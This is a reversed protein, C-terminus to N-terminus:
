KVQSIAIGYEVLYKGIKGMAQEGVVSFSYSNTIETCDSLSVNCYIIILSVAIIAIISFLWGGVHFGYPLFLFGSVINVKIFTFM